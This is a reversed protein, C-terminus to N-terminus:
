VFFDCTDAPYSRSFDCGEAVNGFFSPVTAWTRKLLAEQLTTVHLLQPDIEEDYSVPRRAAGGTESRADDNDPLLQALTQELEVEADVREEDATPMYTMGADRIVTHAAKSLASQAQLASVVRQLQELQAAKKSVEAEQAQSRKKRTAEAQLATEVHWSIADLVDDHSTETAKRPDNGPGSGKAKRPGAKGKGEHEGGGALNPHNNNKGMLKMIPEFLSFAISSDQGGSQPVESGGRPSAAQFPNFVWDM